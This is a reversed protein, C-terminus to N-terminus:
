QIAWKQEEEKRKRSLGRLCLLCPLQFVRIGGTPNRSSRQILDFDVRCVRWLAATAKHRSYEITVVSCQPPEQTLKARRRIKRTVRRGCTAASVHCAPDRAASLVLWAREASKLGKSVMYAMVQNLLLLAFRAGLHSTGYIPDLAFSFPAWAIAAPGCAGPLLLSCSM